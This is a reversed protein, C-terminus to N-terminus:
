LLFACDYFYLSKGEREDRPRGQLMELGYKQIKSEYSSLENEDIHFAIHNYSREIPNGQMLAIWLEGM